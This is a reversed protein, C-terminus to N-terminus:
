YKNTKIVAKGLVQFTSYLDVENNNQFSTIHNRNLCFFLCVWPKIHVNM